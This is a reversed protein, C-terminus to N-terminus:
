SFNPRANAAHCNAVIKINQLELIKIYVHYTFLPHLPHPSSLLPSSHPCIFLPTLYISIPLCICTVFMSIYLHLSLSVFLYSIPLASSSLSIPSLLTPPPPDRDEISSVFVTPKDNRDNHYRNILLLLLNLLRFLFIHLFILASQTQYRARHLERLNIVNCLFILELRKYHKLNM